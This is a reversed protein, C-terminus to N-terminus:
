SPVIWFVVFMCSPLVYKEKSNTLAMPFEIVAAFEVVLHDLEPREVPFKLANLVVIPRKVRSLVASRDEAAPLYRAVM